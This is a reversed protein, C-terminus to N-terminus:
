SLRIRQILFSQWLSCRRCLLLLSEVSPIIRQTSLTLDFRELLVCSRARLLVMPTWSWFWFNFRASGFLPDARVTKNADTAEFVGVICSLAYFYDTDGYAM